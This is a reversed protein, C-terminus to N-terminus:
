RTGDFVAPLNILILSAIAELIAELELAELSFAATRLLVLSCASLPRRSLAKCSAANDNTELLRLFAASM